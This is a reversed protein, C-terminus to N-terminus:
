QKTSSLVWRGGTLDAGTIWRLFWALGALMLILLVFGWVIVWLHLFTIGIVTITRVILWRRHLM